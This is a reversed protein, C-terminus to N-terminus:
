SSIFQLICETFVFYVGDDNKIVVTIVSPCGIFVGPGIQGINSGSPILTCFFAETHEPLKDDIIAIEATTSSTDKELPFDPFQVSHVGGVFDM